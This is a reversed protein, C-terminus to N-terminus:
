GEACCTARARREAHAAPTSDRAGARAPRCRFAVHAAGGSALALRPGGAPLCAPMTSERELRWRRGQALLAGAGAPPPLAIRRRRSAGAVFGVGCADKDNEPNFLGQAEPVASHKSVVQPPPWPAVLPAVLAFKLRPLPVSAAAARQRRRSAGSRPPAIGCAHWSRPGGPPARLGPPAPCPAAPAKPPSRARFNVPGGQGERGQAAQVCVQLRSGRGARTPCLQLTSTAKRLGPGGLARSRLGTFAAFAPPRAGLLHSSPGRGVGLAGPLAAMPGHVRQERAGQSSPSGALPQGPQLVHRTSPPSHCLTCPLGWPATLTGSPRPRCRPSCSIEVSRVHTM